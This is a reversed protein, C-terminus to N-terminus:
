PAPLLLTGFSRPPLTVEWAKEGVRIRLTREDKRANLLEVALTGDPRVVALADDTRSGTLVVSGPVAFRSWHQFARFMPTYIVKKAERDIVIASNQPWPKEADISKGTEDLVINWLSYLEAGGDLYARVNRWTMAAYDFDNQPRDPQFGREWFHNGCDTETQWVRLGPALKRAAEAIPLGGWQLGLAGVFPRAKEDGLVARAHAENDPQNFTGLLVTAGSKRAALTPGLHDRVFTRFQSPDWKCSPYHTLIYPENQVAVAEVPVGEARYAEVWKALYLAYAAYIAPDDKMKGSDFAGNDKMWPPPSWASAWFRMGPHLAQAAQVYPLLLKRDRDISFREMALDGPTEDLAYRSLAYDSSGIPIRCFGLSLGEAPAFIRKLVQARAEADLTQLVEWGKENFAGGWGALAQQRKAPFAEFDARRAEASYVPVEVLESAETSVLLKATPDPTRAEAARCAAPASCALAALLPVLLRTM